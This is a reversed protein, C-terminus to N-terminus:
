AAAATQEMAQILSRHIEPVSADTQRRVLASLVKNCTYHGNQVFELRPGAADAAAGERVSWHTEMVIGMPSQTRVWVGDACDVYVERSVIDASYVPNPVHHCVDYARPAAAAAPAPAAAKAEAAEAEPLTAAEYKVFHPNCRLFQDHTQLLRIASAKDLTKSAIPTTYTFTSKSTLVKTM